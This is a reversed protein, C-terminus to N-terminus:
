AASNLRKAAAAKSGFHTREKLVDNVRGASVNYSAAIIHQYEGNWHRLWVNVADELTLRYPKPKPINDNSM